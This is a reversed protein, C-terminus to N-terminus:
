FLFVNCAMCEIIGSFASFTREVLCSSPAGSACIHNRVFRYYAFFTALTKPYSIFTLLSHSIRYLSFDSRYPTVIFTCFSHPKRYFHLLCGFHAFLPSFWFSAAPFIRSSQSVIVQPLHLLRYRVALMFSFHFCISGMCSRNIVLDARWVM